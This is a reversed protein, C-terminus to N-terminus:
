SIGARTPLHESLNAPNSLPYQSPSRFSVMLFSTSRCPPVQASDPGSITLSFFSGGVWWAISPSYSNRCKFACLWPYHSWSRGNLVRAGAHKGRNAVPPPEDRGDLRKIGRLPAEMENPDLVRIAVTHRLVASGNPSSPANNASM